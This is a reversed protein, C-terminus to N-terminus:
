DWTKIKKKVKWMWGSLCEAKWPLLAGQQWCQIPHPLIIGCSQVSNHFWPFLGFFISPTTLPSPHGTPLHWTKQSSSGAQRIGQWLRLPGLESGTWALEALVLQQPVPLYTQKPWGLAFYPFLLLFFFHLLFLHCCFSFGSRTTIGVTPLAKHQCCHTKPLWFYPVSPGEKDWDRFKARPLWSTILLLHSSIAARPGLANEQWFHRSFWWKGWM